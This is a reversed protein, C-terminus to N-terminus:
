HTLDRPKPQQTAVARRHGVAGQWLRKGSPLEGRVNLAALNGFGDVRAEDAFAQGALSIAVAAVPATWCTKFM